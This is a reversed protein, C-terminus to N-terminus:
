WHTTFNQLINDWERRQNLELSM